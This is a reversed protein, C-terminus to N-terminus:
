KWWRSKINGDGHKMGQWTGWAQTSSKRAIWLAVENNDKSFTKIVGVTCHQKVTTLCCESLLRSSTSFAHDTVTVLGAQWATTDGLGQCISLGTGSRSRADGRERVDDSVGTVTRAVEYNLKWRTKNTHRPKEPWTGCREQCYRQGSLACTPGHTGTCIKGKTAVRLNNKERIFLSSTTHSGTPHQWHLLLIFVGSGLQAQSAWTSSTAKGPPEPGGLKDGTLQWTATSTSLLTQLLSPFTAARPSAGPSCSQHDAARNWGARVTQSHEWRIKTCVQLFLFRGRVKFPHVVSVFLLNHSWNKGSQQFASCSYQGNSHVFPVIFGLEQLARPPM